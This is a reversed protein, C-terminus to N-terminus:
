QKVVTLVRPLADGETLKMILNRAAPALQTVSSRRQATQLALLVLGPRDYTSTGGFDRMSIMIEAQAANPGVTLILADSRSLDVVRDDPRTISGSARRCITGDFGDSHRHSWLVTQNPETTIAVSMEPTDCAVVHRVYCGKTRGPNLPAEHPESCCIRVGDLAIQMPTNASVSSFGLQALNVEYYGPPQKTAAVPNSGLKISVTSLTDIPCGKQFYVRVIPTLNDSACQAESSAAALSAALAALISVTTLRTM